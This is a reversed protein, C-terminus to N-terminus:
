GGATTAKKRKKKKNKTTTPTTTSPSATRRDLRADAVATGGGTVVVATAAAQSGQHDFWQSGYRATPDSFRVRYKGPALPLLAWQGNGDTMVQDTHGAGVPSVTVALGLLPKGTAADTVRGRITGITATMRALRATLDAQVGALAPDDILNTLENPDTQLDFLQAEGSQAFTGLLYRDTRVGWGEGMFDRNGGCFSAFGSTTRCGFLLVEGPNPITAQGHLDDAFSQGDFFGAPAKAGTLDVVTPTIDINSTLRPLTGAAIGPGRVQLPVRISEEYYHGKGVLRHEGFSYGNDSTYFIYTNDLRGSQRLEEILSAVNEDVSQLAQCTLRLQNLQAGPLQAKAAQLWGPVRRTDVANFSPPLTFTTSACANRHRDAPRVTFHPAVPAYYAFLPVDAATTRMFDRLIAAYRDTSYDAAKDGYAVVQGNEINSYNVYPYGPPSKKGGTSVSENNGSFGAFRDWGKPKYAGRKFPWGNLYKGSLATRYGAAKLMTALTTSEDLREGQHLTTVGTHFNYRGTFMTARSPCCESEQVFSNAITAWGGAKAMAPMQGMSDFRQDDTNVIIINPRSKPATAPQYPWTLNLCACSGSLAAGTPPHNTVRIRRPGLAAGDNATVRIQLRSSSVWTVSDVALDYSLSEVTASKDFGTGAIAVPKNSADARLSVAGAPKPTPVPAAPATTSSSGPPTAQSQVTSRGSSSSCSAMLALVLLVQM